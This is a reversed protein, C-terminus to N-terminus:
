EAPQPEHRQPGILTRRVEGTEADLLYVRATTTAVALSTGGPAFAVWSTQTGFPAFPLLFQRKVTGDAHDMLVIRRDDVAAISSGDHSFAVSVVAGEHAKASWLETGTGVEWVRVTSDYSASALTRGDPAFRVSMVDREHGKLTRLPEGTDTTWLRITGDRSGTALIRGDPTVDLSTIQREHGELRHVPAASEVDWIIATKDDGASFLTKHDLPHFAVAHVDATHAELTKTPGDSLKETHWLRVLNDGGGTLLSKGDASYAISFAWDGHAEIDSLLKGSEVDWILLHGYGNGGALRGGDPSFTLNHIAYPYIAQKDAPNLMTAVPDLPVGLVKPEPAVVKCGKVADSVTGKDDQTAEGAQAVVILCFVCLLVPRLNPRM